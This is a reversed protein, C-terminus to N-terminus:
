LFSSYNIGNLLTYWLDLWAQETKVRYATALAHCLTGGPTLDEFLRVQILM